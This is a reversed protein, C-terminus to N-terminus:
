KKCRKWITVGQEPLSSLITVYKRGTIPDASQPLIELLPVLVFQRECMLPHPIYLPHQEDDDHVIETGFLEIDIDLTRPGKAAACARDRGYKQELANVAALLSRPSQTWTGSVAMNYFDNQNEYYMAKTRYVSSCVLNGLLMSLEGCVASLIDPPQLVSSDPQVAAM